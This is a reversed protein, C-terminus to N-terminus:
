RVLLLGSVLKLAVWTKRGRSPDLGATAQMDEFAAAIDISHIMEEVNKRYQAVGAGKAQQASTSASKEDVEVSYAFLCGKNQARLEELLPM